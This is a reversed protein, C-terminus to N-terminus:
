EALVGAAVLPRLCFRTIADRHARAAPHDWADRAVAWPDDLGADRYVDPNYFERWTINVYAGLHARVGAVV